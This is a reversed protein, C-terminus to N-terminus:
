SQIGRPYKIYGADCVPWVSMTSGLRESRRGRRNGHSSTEVLEAQTIYTVAGVYIGLRVCAFHDLECGWRLLDVWVAPVVCVALM